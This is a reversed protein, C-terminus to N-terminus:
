YCDIDLMYLSNVNVGDIDARYETVTKFVNASSLDAVLCYPFFVWVPDCIDQSINQYRRMM